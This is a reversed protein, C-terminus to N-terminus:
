MACTSRSPPSGGGASEVRDRTDILGAADLDLAVVEYGDAALRVATSRRIGSAAGTVVARGASM